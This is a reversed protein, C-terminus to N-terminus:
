PTYITNYFNLGFYCSIKITTNKIYNQQMEKTTKTIKFVAFSIEKKLGTYSIGGKEM